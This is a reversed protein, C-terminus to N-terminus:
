SSWSATPTARSKNGNLEVKPEGKPHRQLVSLQGERGCTAVPKKSIEGGRASFRRTLHPRTSRLGIKSRRGGGSQGLLYTVTVYRFFATWCHSLSMAECPGSGIPESMSRKREASIADNAHGSRMSGTLFAIGASTGVRQCHPTLTSTAPMSGSKAGRANATITRLTQQWQSRRLPTRAQRRGAPAPSAGQSAGHRKHRLQWHVGM